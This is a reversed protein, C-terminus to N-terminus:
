ILLIFLYGIICGISLFPMAPYFRDEKSRLLLMLLALSVFLPIILTKAFGMFVTTKLMLGKMVVGAFLLPFGIDGGGLIASKIGPKQAGSAHGSKPLRSTKAAIKGSSGSSTTKEVTKSRYPILLGAFLKSESQFKAMKVMHKSHWVAYMDYLSILILLIIVASLDMIPVLIAALGGYVLTETLNHIYVNPKYIKLFALAFAAFLAVYRNIFASISITLCILVALFFWLKWLRYAKTKILLFVLLTGIIIAAFIYMFSSSEKVDPRQIDLPLDVWTVNGTQETTKHDIYSNTVLLGIVQSFFFLLVLILTIRLTHKM